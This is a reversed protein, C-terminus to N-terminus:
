ETRGNQPRSFDGPNKEEYLVGFLPGIFFQNNNFTQVELLSDLKIKSVFILRSYM